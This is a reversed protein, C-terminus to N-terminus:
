PQVQVSNRNALMETHLVSARNKCKYSLVELEANKESIYM